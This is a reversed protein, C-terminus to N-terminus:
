RAILIILRAILFIIARCSYLRTDSLSMASSLSCHLSNIAAGIASILQFIFTQGSSVTLVKCCENM